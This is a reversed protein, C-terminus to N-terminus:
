YDYFDNIKEERMENLYEQTEKRTEENRKLTDRASQQIQLGQAEEASMGGSNGSFSTAPSSFSPPAPAVAPAQPLSQTAPAPAYGPSEQQYSNDPLFVDDSSQSESSSTDCGILLTAAVLASFQVLFRFRMYCAGTLYGQM